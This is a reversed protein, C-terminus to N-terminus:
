IDGAKGYEYKQCIYSIITIILVIGIFAGVGAWTPTALCNVACCNTCNMRASCENAAEICYKWTVLEM